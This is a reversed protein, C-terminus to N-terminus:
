GPSPIRNLPSRRRRCRQGRWGAAWLALWRHRQGKGHRHCHCSQRWHSRYQGRITYFARTRSHLCCRHGCPCINSLRSPDKAHTFSIMNSKPDRTCWCQPWRFRLRQKGGNGFHRRGLMVFRTPLAATVRDTLSTQFATGSQAGPRGAGQPLTKTMCTEMRAGV